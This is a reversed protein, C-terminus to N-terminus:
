DSYTVHEEEQVKVASIDLIHLVLLSINSLNLGDHSVNDTNIQKTGMIGTNGMMFKMVRLFM